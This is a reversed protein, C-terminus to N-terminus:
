EFIVAVRAIPSVRYKAGQRDACLFNSRMLPGRQLILKKDKDLSFWTGEKLDQVMPREDFPNHKQIATQMPIDRASTAAPNQAHRLILPQLDEAFLNEQVIAEHLLRQFALQWHHGHPAMGLLRQKGWRLTVENHALEHITTLLMQEKNGSVTITILSLPGYANPRHDGHKTKRPKTVQFVCPLRELVLRRIWDGCNSPLFALLKELQGSVTPVAPEFCPIRPGPTLADRLQADIFHEAMAQAKEHDPVTCFKQFNADSITSPLRMGGAFRLEIQSVTPLHTYGVLAGLTPPFRDM